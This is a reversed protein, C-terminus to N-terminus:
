PDWYYIAHFTFKKPINSVIKVTSHKSPDHYKSRHFTLDSLEGMVSLGKMKFLGKM